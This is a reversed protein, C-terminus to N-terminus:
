AAAHEADQVFTVQEPDLEAVYARPTCGALARFERVLHSQDTYGCRAAVSAAPVGTALLRSARQFRLVRAAVKPALGIGARFRNTFHRRSWGIEAALDGVAVAGHRDRLMRWAWSVAPDPDPVDALARLLGAEVVDLRRAWDPAEAAREAVSDLLPLATVQGTLEAPPVGFLRYAGHPTVRLEVGCQAGAFETIGWSDHMGAVFSRLATGNVDITPGLSLIVTLAPHPTVRRALRGPVFEAYGYGATVLGALRRHVPRRALEWTLGGVEGRSLALGPPAVAPASV